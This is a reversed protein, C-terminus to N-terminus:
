SVSDLWDAVLVALAPGDDAIVDHTTGPLAVTEACGIKTERNYKGNHDKKQDDGPGFGQAFSKVAYWHRQQDAHM